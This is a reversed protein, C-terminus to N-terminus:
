IKNDVRKSGAQGEDTGTQTTRTFRDFTTKYRYGRYFEHYSNIILAPKESFGDLNGTKGVHM